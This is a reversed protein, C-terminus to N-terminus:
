KKKLAKSLFEARRTGGLFDVLSQDVAKKAAEAAEAAPVPEAPPAAPPAREVPAFDAPPPLKVAKPKALRVGGAARRREAHGKKSQELAAGKRAARLDALQAREAAGPPAVGRLETLSEALAAARREDVQDAAIIALNLAKPDPPLGEAQMRDFLALLTVWQQARGLAGLMANFARPTRLPHRAFLAAAAVHDEGCAALAAALCSESVACGAEGSELRGFLRLAASPEGAANCAAMASAFAHPNGRLATNAQMEDLLALARASFDAVAPGKRAAAGKACAAIAAAYSHTDPPLARQAKRVEFLELAREWEDVRLCAWMASVFM